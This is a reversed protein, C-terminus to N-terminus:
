RATAVVVVLADHCAHCLSGTRERLWAFYLGFRSPRSGRRCGIEGVLLLDFVNAELPM